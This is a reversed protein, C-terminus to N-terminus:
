PTPPMGAPAAVAPVQPQAAAEFGLRVEGSPTALIAHHVDVGRLTVGPVIERGVPVFRQTGDPMGIVAGRSLLGFLHLQSVDVPPAVAVPAAAAPSPVVPQAYTAPQEAPTTAAIDAQVPESSPGSDGGRLLLYLLLVAIVGGGWLLARRNRDSPLM